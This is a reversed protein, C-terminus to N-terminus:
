IFSVRVQARRRMGSGVIAFGVLMLLWTGPEPVATTTVTDVNTFVFGLDEFNFDGGFDLDEFAVFRGAPIGFDGGAYDTSWVHNTFGDVNLSNDSYWTFEGANVDIYFTLVDGANVAGFDFSDGPMSSTSVLTSLGADVGNVLLGLINTFSGTSGTFYAVLNANSSATFTYLEPNATGSNPYVPIAAFAPTSALGLSVGAIASRMMTKITM